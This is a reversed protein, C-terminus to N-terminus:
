ALELEDLEQEISVEAVPAVPAVGATAGKAQAKPAAPAVATQGEEEDDSALTLTQPGKAQAVPTPGKSAEGKGYWHTVELSAKIDETVKAKTIYEVIHQPQGNADQPFKHMGRYAVRKDEKSYGQWDIEVDTVIEKMLAKMVLVALSKDELENELAKTFGLKALLGAATSINKGRGVATSVRPFVRVKDYEGGPSNVIEGEISISYIPNMANGQRDTDYIIVPDKAPHLKISYRGAPPPASYEWADESVDHKRKEGAPLNKDQLIDVVRGESQKSDKEETDSKQQAAKSKDIVAM